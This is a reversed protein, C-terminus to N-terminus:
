TYDNGEQRHKLLADIDAKTVGEFTSSTQKNLFELLDVREYMREVDASLKIMNKEM